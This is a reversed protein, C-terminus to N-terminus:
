ARRGPRGFRDRGVASLTHYTVARVDTEEISSLTTDLVSMTLVVDVGAVQKEEPAAAIKFMDADPNGFDKKFALIGGAKATANGALDIALVELNYGQTEIFTTDNVLWTQLSGVRELRSNGPGYAQVIAQGGGVEHYRISLSDLEENIQFAPNKTTLNITPEDDRDANKPATPPDDPGDKGTPFLDSIGPNNGDLTIGTLTMESTNGLSDTVEIKLDATLGAAGDYATDVTDVTVWSVWSQFDVTATSDGPSDAAPTRDTPTILSEDIDM